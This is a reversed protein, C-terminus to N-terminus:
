KKEEETKHYKKFREDLQYIFHFVKSCNPKGKTDLRELDPINEYRRKDSIDKLIVSIGILLEQSKRKRPLTVPPTVDERLIRPSRYEDSQIPFLLVDIMSTKEHLKMIPRERIVNIAQDEKEKKLYNIIVKKKASENEEYTHTNVDAFTSNGGISETLVMKKKMFSPTTILMIMSMTVGLRIDRKEIERKELLCEQLTRLIKRIDL